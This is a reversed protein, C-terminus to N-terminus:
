RATAADVDADADAALGDDPGPEGDDSPRGRILL